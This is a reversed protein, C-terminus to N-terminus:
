AFDARADTETNQKIWEATPRLKVDAGHDHGDIRPKGFPKCRSKQPTVLTGSTATSSANM